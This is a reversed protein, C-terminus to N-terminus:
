IFSLKEPNSSIKKSVPNYFIYSITWLHLTSKSNPFNLNGLYLRGSPIVSFSYRLFSTYSPIELFYKFLDIFISSTSSSSILSFRFFLFNPFISSLTLYSSSIIFLIPYLPYKMMTHSKIFNALSFPIYTPGPLPEAAPLM